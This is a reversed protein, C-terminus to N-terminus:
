GGAMGFVMSHKRHKPLPSSVRASIRSRSPTLSKARTAWSLASSMGGVGASACGHGDSRITESRSRVLSACQRLQAVACPHVGSGSRGFWLVPIQPSSQRAAFPPRFRGHPDGPQLSRALPPRDLLAFDSIPLGFTSPRGAHSAPPFTNRPLPESM